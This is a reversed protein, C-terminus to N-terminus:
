HIESNHFMLFYYKKSLVTSFINVDGFLQNFGVTKCHLDVIAEVACLTAGHHLRLVALKRGGRPYMSKLVFGLLSM